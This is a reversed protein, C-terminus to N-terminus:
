LDFHDETWAVINGNLDKIVAHEGKPMKAFCELFLGTHVVKGNLLVLTFRKVPDREPEQPM